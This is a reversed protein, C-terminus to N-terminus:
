SDYVVGDKPTKGELLFKDIAKSTEGFLGYSTHGSGDRFLSVSTPLQERLGLAWAISTEPDHFANVVLMPSAKKTKKVDLRAPPNTMKAPWGACGAEIEFSQSVGRTHPALARAAIIRRALFGASDARPWDQCEVARESFFFDTKATPVSAALATGNNDDVALKLIQSLMAWSQASSATANVRTLLPQVNRLIDYSTVDARCGKTPDAKCEPAPLPEREARDVLDDFITPLDRGHFACESTTNCWDFFQNLTSEYTVAETLFMTHSDGSHDLAGDLVMRGTHEPFREAYQAGIQTGYSFGLYDFKKEGLARRILDLDQVVSITDVFGLAPGSLNACSEGFEKNRRVLEQFGAEDSVYYNTRNQQTAPDCQIPTSLGIGRPDPGILDYRQRVEYSVVADRIGKQERQAQLAIPRTGSGGPGGPNLFLSGLRDTGNAKLRYVALNITPGSRLRYDMPVAIQGCEVPKPVDSPCPIWEIASSNSKSDTATPLGAAVTALGLIAQLKQRIM